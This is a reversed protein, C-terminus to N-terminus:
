VNFNPIKRSERMEFLYNSRFSAVGKWKYNRRTWKQSENMAQKVNQIRM